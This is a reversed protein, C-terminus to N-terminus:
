AQSHGNYNTRQIHLSRAGVTAGAMAAALGLLSGFTFGWSAKSGNSAVERTQQASLTPIPSPTVGANPAEGGSPISNRVDPITIGNQQAQNAIRDANAAALGFAGTVGIALLFSSIALTTAWLIAGNLAATSRNVSGFSRATIWGGIFLSIFLSIITWIGVAGAVDGSDSRPAGSGAINGFGMAAGIASLLLQSSIAIVLGAIIAGWHIRDSFETVGNGNNSRRETFVEETQNTRIM